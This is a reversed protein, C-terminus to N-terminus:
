HTGIYSLSVTANLTFLNRDTKPEKGLSNITGTRVVANVVYDYGDITVNNGSVSLDFHSAISSAKAYGTPHSDARVQVMIGFHEDVEGTAQMRNDKNGTTDYVTIVNDQLGPTQSIYIPWNYVPSGTGISPDEGLGLTVLLSRIIEAPSHELEM